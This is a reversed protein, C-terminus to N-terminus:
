RRGAGVPLGLLARAEDSTAAPRDLLGAIRVVREVLSANTAPFIRDRDYWLNDELGVRVHGGMALALANVDLQFRGIGAASWTSAGPLARVAAALNFASASLTGLSGLLINVYLPPSLIARDVLYGLYDVMGLDFVELEPTIGREGMREALRRIMEPDNVSAQGPFNLSGLTLSALDPKEDGDLDLVAAREEFDKFTRGSTSVCVIVDPCRERVAHVIGRYVEPRWTPSGRDDRAHLHVISAGAAVVREADEAIERPTVPVSANDEKTPVMGTLAANVVLPTPGGSRDHGAVSGWRLM